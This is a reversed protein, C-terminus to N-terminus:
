SREPPTSAAARAAMYRAPSQGLAKRFMTVFSSANEYGLENAVSKVSAGRAMSQIALIVHGTQAV